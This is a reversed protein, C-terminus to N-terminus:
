ILLKGFYQYKKDKIIRKRSLFYGNKDMEAIIIDSNEKVDPIMLALEMTIYDPCKKLLMKAEVFDVDNDNQVSFLCNSSKMIRNMYKVVSCVSKVESKNNTTNEYTYDEDISYISIRDFFPEYDVYAKDLVSMPITNIDFSQILDKLDKTNNTNSKKNFKNDIFEEFSKINNM